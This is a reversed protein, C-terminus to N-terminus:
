WKLDQRIAGALRKSVIVDMGGSMKLLWRKSSLPSVKRIHDTNVIAGRRVRRFRPSELTAELHKLTHQALYRRSATVVHVLEGESLFAIVEGPDLLHIEGGSAGAIKRPAEPRAARPATAAMGALQAGAKALAAELRERRVPKLLYDVAGAEFAALAHQHYATVFVILPLREGRLARVVGFGDLGPMELDLLLVDPRLRDIKEVAEPGSAAEGILEVGSLEALLDRLIERAIPEDDAILIRM